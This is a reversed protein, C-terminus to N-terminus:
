SNDGEEFSKNYQDALASTELAIRRSRRTLWAHLLLAPIAVVLGFETTVLAESIGGSLVRADGAGNLSILQFTKIMGTVTGLLGLLPAVAATLAILSLKSELRGRFGIFAHTMAAHRKRESVNRLAFGQEFIEKSAPPLAQVARAFDAPAEAQSLAAIAEPTPAKIRRIQLLKLIGFLASLIGFLSIPVMWIGGSRLHQWWTVRSAAVLAAQGLTPDLPLTTTTNPELATARIAEHFQAVPRLDEKATVEAVRGDGFDIFAYPGLKTVVGSRAVSDSWVSAEFRHGGRQTQSYQLVTEALSLSSELRKRTAQESSPDVHEISLLQSSFQDREAIHLNEEFVSRLSLLRNLATTQRSRREKLESELRAAKAKAANTSAKLQSSQRKLDSVSVQLEQLTELLPRNEAAIRQRTEALEERASDKESLSWSQSNAFANTPEEQGSAHSALLTAAALAFLIRSSLRKM